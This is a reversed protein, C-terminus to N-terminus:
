PLLQQEEYYWEIQEIEEKPDGVKDAITVFVKCVPIYWELARCIIKFVLLRDCGKFLREM